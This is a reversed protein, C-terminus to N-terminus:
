HRVEGSNQSQDNQAVAEFAKESAGWVVLETSFRVDLLDPADRDDRLFRYRCIVTGQADRPINWQYAVGSQAIIRVKQGVDM